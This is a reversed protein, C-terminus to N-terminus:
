GDVSVAATIRLSGRTPLRKRVWAAADWGDGRMPGLDFFVLWGWGTNSRVTAGHIQKSVAGVAKAEVSFSVFINSVALKPRVLVGLKVGGDQCNCVVSM